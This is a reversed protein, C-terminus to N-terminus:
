FLFTYREVTFPNIMLCATHKLITLDYGRKVFRKITKEFSGSFDDHGLIKRHKYIVDGYYAPHSIGQRLLAKLNSSYKSILDSNRYYFKTFSKRLKSYRYGQQLLKKTIFLNRENFDKLSSCARSFRILQSIYVGYSTARPVDGDLHPFNVINFSYDDRKDYIKTNISNETVSLQLDLFSASKENSNTKNLSLENPYIKNIMNDFFPNDINLIDDLYRSTSNFARIIESQTDPSLGLMFDREYCYLFLDAVLPACNTGMPISIVQRFVSNGFRVYINDLLFSLAKCVEDCTWM